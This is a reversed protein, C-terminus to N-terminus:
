KVLKKKSFQMFIFFNQGLCSPVPCTDRAAWGRGADALAIDTQLRLEYVRVIHVERSNKWSFVPSIEWAHASSKKNKNKKLPPDYKYLWFLSAFM